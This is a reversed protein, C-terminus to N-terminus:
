KHTTAYKRLEEAVSEATIQQKGNSQLNFFGKWGNQISQHIIKIATEENGKALESLGKLAGQEGIPTYGFKFQQKKFERWVNWQKMFTVSSFPYIIEIKKSDKEKDKVKDKVKDKDMDKDKAGQLTSILGKIKYKSLLDLVSKHARNEPNLEGYQFEIFDPIFWKEGNDFPIVKEGFNELAQEVYFKEGTRIEAVEIDVQWIGAHDCDDLIYFWLLKYPTELGRLFPKKWKDTCTFRKAM